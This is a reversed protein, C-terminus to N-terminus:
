LPIRVPNTHTTIWWAYSVATYTEPNDILDYTTLKSDIMKRIDYTIDPTQAPTGILHFLEHYLTLAPLEDVLVRLHTVGDDHGDYIENSTTANYSRDDALRGNGNLVRNCITISPTTTQDQTVCKNAPESCYGNNTPPGYATDIIYEKM